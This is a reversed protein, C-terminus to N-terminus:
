VHYAGQAPTVKPSEAPKATDAPKGSPAADPRPTKNRSSANGLGLDDDDEFDEEQATAQSSTNARALPAASVPNPNYAMMPNIYEGPAEDTHMDASEGFDYSTGWSPMDVAPALKSQIQEGYDSTASERRSISPRQVESPQWPPDIQASQAPAYPLPNSQASSPPAQSFPQLQNRSGTASSPRSGGQARQYGDGLDYTSVARSLQGEGQNSTIASYHSFPGIEGAAAKSPPKVAKSEGEGDIQDEEGAIFKTLRGEFWSGLSDLNPKGVKRLLTDPSKSEPALRSALERLQTSIVVSVAPSKVSKSAM